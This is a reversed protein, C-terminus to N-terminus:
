YKFPSNSYMATALKKYTICQLVKETYYDPFCFFIHSQMFLSIGKEAYELTKLHHDLGHYNYSINYIIKIYLKIYQLNTGNHDESLEYFFLLIENSLSAKKEQSITVALLLIIKMELFTYKYLSMNKYTCLYMEKPRCM